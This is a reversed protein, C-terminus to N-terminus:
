WLPVGQYPALLQFLPNVITHWAQISFFSVISAAVATLGAFIEFPWLGTPQREILDIQAMVRNSVSFQPIAESRAKQALKEIIDFIKDM